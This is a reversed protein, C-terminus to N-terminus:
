RGPQSTAHLAQVSRAWIATRRGYQEALAIEHGLGFSGRELAGLSRLQHKYMSM